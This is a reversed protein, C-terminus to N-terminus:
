LDQSYILEHVEWEKMGAGLTREAMLRCSMRGTEHNIDIRDLSLFIRNDKTPVKGVSSGCGFVAVKHPGDIESVRPVHKHGHMVAAFNRSTAFDKFDEADELEDTKDFFRGFM